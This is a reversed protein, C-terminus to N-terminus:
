EDGGGPPPPPNELLNGHLPHSMVLLLYADTPPMVPSEAATTSPAPAAAAAAAPETAASEASAEASAGAAVARATAGAASLMRTITVGPEAEPQSADVAIIFARCNGDTTETFAVRQRDRLLRLFAPIAQQFAHTSAAGEGGGSAAAASSPADGWADMQAEAEAGAETTQAGHSLRCLMVSAPFESDDPPVGGGAYFEIFKAIPEDVFQYSARKYIRLERPMVARLDSGFFHTVHMVGVVKDKQFLNFSPPEPVAHVQLQSLAPLRFSDARKLRMEQLEANAKSPSKTGRKSASSARGKRKSGGGEEDGDEDDDAAAAGDLRPKKSSRPRSERPESPGDADAAKREGKPAPGPTDVGDRTTVEKLGVVHQVLPWLRAYTGTTDKKFSHNGSLFKALEPRSRLRFGDPTLWYKDVHPAEKRPCHQVIVDDPVVVEDAM